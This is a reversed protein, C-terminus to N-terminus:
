DRGKEKSATFVAMKGLAAKLLLEVGVRTKERIVKTM